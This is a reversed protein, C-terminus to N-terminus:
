PDMRKFAKDPRDLLIKRLHFGRHPLIPAIAWHFPLDIVQLHQLPLHIPPSPYFEM